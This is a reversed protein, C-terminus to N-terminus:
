YEFQYVLGVSSGPDNEPTTGQTTATGNGLRTQLKLHKTLDVDVQVQSTGTTTQRGEIYVRKSVYRGAQIAAGSTEPAGTATTTTNTGVSLRDLGLSKQLKDLPSSGSGGVGSLTALAAGVQALQLASLQSGSEGFLLQAMIEDQQLGSSSSLAIIPADAVGTIRLTATSSGLTTAATFDLTPDIKKQLGVGDFSVRGESFTLKNGALTFSGRLLDLGGSVVPAASTGSLRLPNPSGMEADLGRGQVLIQQRAQIAIDIGIVLPKAAAPAVGTKGRRHVDLVDVEPPFSDPIGITARNVDITGTVDLRERATGTVHIDSDLNATILTTALPQANKATIILNVPMGRQLVGVSGNMDITGPGATAKFSEIQLTGNKGTLEASLDTLNVGRGYDRLSGHALTLSGGVSPATTSGTVAANATLEGAAHLGRAELFPNVLGVDVHGDIKINLAGNVAFPVSGAATLQSATGATLKADISATGDALQARARVDAAPLGIAADDAFRIGKADLQVTGVPNAASGKLRAHGELIGGALLGPVFANVLDPKIQRAAADLELTPSVQGLLEIVAERMGIKLDDVRVGSGFSLVAPALLKATESRYDMRGSQLRLVRADVDLVADAALKAPSGQLLPLDATLQLGLANPPGRGQLHLNGAFQGFVVNEVDLNLQTLPRGQAPVFGVKGAASGALSIGLLRDFDGLQAIRLNLQGRGGGFAADTTLDGELHASKWNAQPILIRLTNEGGRELAANLELPAGDLRGHARITGSPKGPLGLAHLSGDVRGSPSGRVSLQAIVDADATLATLSGGLRGTMKLNGAVDSSLAALDSADFQWHAQLNEIFGGHSSPPRDAKGAAALVLTRGAIRLNDVNLQSASLSGALRLGVRPGVVRIWAADGGTLEATGDVSVADGDQRHAVHAKLAASGRVDQSAFRALPALDPLKLELTGALPGAAPMVDDSHVQLAFLPHTATLDLPRTASDLRLAADVQVATKALLLPESGPIELGGVVAHMGLRGQGATATASLSAIRIQGPVRLRHVDFVGDVAPSSLPGHWSGHGTMDDWSLDARPTMARANVSYGLQASRHTVDVTGKLSAQLGGAKLEVDVLEADRPGALTVTAALAGLGPVTLLHELPGDAPENLALSGDMRRADFRLHLTYDGSGNLRHAVVNADADDLSRLRLNGQLSLTAATGVLPAGLAVRAIALEGVEIHPTSANGGGQSASFPARDVQLLAVKLTDIQIRRKLLASPSWTLSVDAATLWAGHPDILQLERLTLQTPFSGGLGTLKVHGASLKYTMREILGRGADTNGGVMVVGIVVVTLLLVAAIVGVSLRVTRSM